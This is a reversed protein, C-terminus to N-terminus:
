EKPSTALIARLKLGAAVKMIKHIQDYTVGSEAIISVTANEKNNSYRVATAVDKELSGWSVSRGNVSLDGDKKIMVALDSPAVTKSDSKPLPMNIQVMSSTLM